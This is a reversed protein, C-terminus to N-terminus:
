VMSTAMSWLARMMSGVGLPAAAWVSQCSSDRCPRALIVFASCHLWYARPCTGSPSACIVVYPLMSGCDNHGGIARCPELSSYNGRTTPGSYRQVTARPTCCSVFGDGVTGCATWRRSPRVIRVGPRRFNASKAGIPLLYHMLKPGSNGACQVVSPQDMGYVYMSLVYQSFSSFDLRVPM